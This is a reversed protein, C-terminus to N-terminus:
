KEASSLSRYAARVLMWLIFYLVVIGVVIVVRWVVSLDADLLVHPMNLVFMAFLGVLLGLFAGWIPLRKPVWSSPALVAWIGWILPAFCWLTTLPFAKPVTLTRTLFIALLIIPIALAPIVGASAFRRLM